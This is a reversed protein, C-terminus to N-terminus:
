GGEVRGRGGFGEMGGSFGVMASTSLTSVLFPSFPTACLGAATVAKPLRPYAGRLMITSALSIMWFDMKRRLHM